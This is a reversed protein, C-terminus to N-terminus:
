LPDFCKPKLISIFKNVLALYISDNNHKLANFLTTESGPKSEDVVDELPGRTDGARPLAGAVDAHAGDLDGDPSAAAVPSSSSSGFVDM